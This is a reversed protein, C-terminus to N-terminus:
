GAGGVAVTRRVRATHQPEGGALVRAREVGRAAVVGDGPRELLHEEVGQDVVVRSRVDDGLEGRRPRDAGIAPQRAEGEPAVDAERRPSREGGGGDLVRELTEELRRDVRLARFEEGADLAGGVVRGAPWPIEAAEADRLG